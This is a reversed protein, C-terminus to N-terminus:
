RLYARMRALCAGLRHHTISADLRSRTPLFIEAALDGARQTPASQM